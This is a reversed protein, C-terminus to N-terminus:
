YGSQDVNVQRENHLFLPFYFGFYIFEQSILTHSTEGFEMKLMKRKSFFSLFEMMNKKDVIM